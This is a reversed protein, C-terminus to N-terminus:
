AKSMPMCGGLYRCDAEAGCKRYRGTASGTVTAEGDGIATRSLGAMM